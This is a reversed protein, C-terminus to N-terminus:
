QFMSHLPSQKQVDATLEPTVQSLANSNARMEKDQSQWPRTQVVKGAINWVGDWNRIGGRWIEYITSQRTHVYACVAITFISCKNLHLCYTIFLPFEMSQWCAFLLVLSVLVTWKQLNRLLETTGKLAPVSLSWVSHVTVTPLVPSAPTM